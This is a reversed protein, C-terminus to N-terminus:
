AAVQADPMVGRGPWPYLVHLLQADLIFVDLNDPTIVTGREVVPAGCIKAKKAFCELTKVSISRRERDRTAMEPSERSVKLSPQRAPVLMPVNADM